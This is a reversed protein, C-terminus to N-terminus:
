PGEGRGAAGRRAAARGGACRTRRAAGSSRQSPGDAQVERQTHDDPDKGAGGGPRAVGSAGGPSVASAVRRTLGLRDGSRVYFMPCVWCSASGPSRRSQSVCGWRRWWSISGGRQSAACTRRSSWRCRHRSAASARSWCRIRYIDAGGSSGFVRFGFVLVARLPRRVAQSCRV